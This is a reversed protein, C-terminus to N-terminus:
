KVECLITYDCHNTTLELKYGNEFIFWIEEFMDDGENRKIGIHEFNM